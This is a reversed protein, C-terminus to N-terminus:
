QSGRSRRVSSETSSTLSMLGEVEQVKVGLWSASTLPVNNKLACHRSHRLSPVAAPVCLILSWCRSGCCSVLTPPVSKKTEPPVMQFLSPLSTPVTCTEGVHHLGRSRVAALPRKNKLAQSPPPSSIQVLSPVASPVKRTRSM